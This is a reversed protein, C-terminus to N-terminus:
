RAPGCARRIGADPVVAMPLLGGRGFRTADDVRAWGDPGARPRPCGTTAPWRRTSSRTSATSSNTSRATTASWTSSSASRSRSCRGGCSTTSPPSGAAISATTSRSGASTSGTAASSPPWARPGPRRPADAPGARRAGRPPAPRGGRRPGAVRRRAHEVLPFLEPPQGPRLGVAAPRGAGRRRAPRGPLLLPAVDPRRRGHRPRRGRPEPRGADRLTRYFDAVGDRESPRSRGAIPGSPSRQLAAVHRPEASPSGTRSSGASRASIIAFQDRSRARHGGRERRDPPGQGPLGRGLRRIKAESAADKDEARVFDFEPGRM